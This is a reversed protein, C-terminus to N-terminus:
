GTAQCLETSANDVEGCVVQWELANDGQGWGKLSVCQHQVMCPRGVRASVCVDTFADVCMHKLTVTMWVAGDFKCALKKRLRKLISVLDGPEKLLRTVKEQVLAPITKWQRCLGKNKEEEKERGEKKQLGRRDFGQSTM